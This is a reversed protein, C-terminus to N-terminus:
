EKFPKELVSSKKYSLPNSGILFDNVREDSNCMSYSIINKPWDGPTAAAGGAGHMPLWQVLKLIM